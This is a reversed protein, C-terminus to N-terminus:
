MVRALCMVALCTLALCMVALCMVALCMVALCPFALSALLASLAARLRPPILPCHGVAIRVVSLLRKTDGIDLPIALRDLTHLM